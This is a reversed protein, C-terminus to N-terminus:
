GYSEPSPSHLAPEPQGPMEICLVRDRGGLDTQVTVDATAFAQRALRAAAPGQTAGIEVLIAGAPRLYTPAQHLLRRILDLGDPGGDLALRPEHARVEPPLSPWDQHAVYPPNAVILDVPEPLAELLDAQIFTVRDAVEHRLANAQAVRLAQPSLDLAYVRALPAHVALAVGICGSGTGVDALLPSPHRSILELALEVLTETEPRPILVRPDVAFDLGYFELHGTLYPLPEGQARRDLLEQYGAHQRSRVPHEPHAYLHARSCDLVHTLLLEAELRPNTARGRLCNVAHALSSAVTHEDPERGSAGLSTVSAKM